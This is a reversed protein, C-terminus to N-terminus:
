IEKILMILNGRIENLRMGMAMIARIAETAGRARPDVSGLLYKCGSDKAIKAIEECMEFAVGVRRFEVTVFIDAIYCYDGDIKYTAFGEKREIIALEEREEVYQAYLSKM